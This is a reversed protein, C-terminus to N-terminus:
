SVMHHAVRTWSHVISINCSKKKQINGAISARCKVSDLRLMAEFSENWAQELEVTIIIIINLITLITIFTILVIIIIFLIPVVTNSFTNTQKDFFWIDKQEKSPTQSSWNYIILSLYSIVICIDKHVTPSPQSSLYNIGHEAWGPGQINCLLGELIVIM